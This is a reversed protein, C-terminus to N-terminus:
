THPAILYCESNSDVRSVLRDKSAAEVTVPVFLVGCLRYRNPDLHMTRCDESATGVTALCLVVSSWFWVALDAQSTKM